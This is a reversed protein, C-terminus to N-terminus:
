LIFDSNNHNPAIYISTFQISISNNNIRPNNHKKKM